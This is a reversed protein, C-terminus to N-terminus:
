KSQRSVASRIFLLIFFSASATDLIIDGLRSSRGIVFGQHVEDGVAFLVVILVAKFASRGTAMYLMLGLLGYLTFHGLKHIIFDPNLTIIYSFFGTSGLHVSYRNLWQLYPPLKGHFFSLYPISSFLYIVLMLAIVAGGYVYRRM